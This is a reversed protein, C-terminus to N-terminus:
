GQIPHDHVKDQYVNFDIYVYNYIYVLISIFEQFFCVCVLKKPAKLFSLYVGKGEQVKARRSQSPITPINGIPPRWTTSRAIANAGNTSCNTASFFEPKHYIYRVLYSYVRTNM